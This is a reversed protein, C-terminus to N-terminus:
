QLGAGWVWREGSALLTMSTTNITPCSDLATTSLWAARRQHWTRKLCRWGAWLACLLISSYCISAPSFVPRALSLSLSLGVSVTWNPFPLTTPFPCPLSLCVVVTKRGWHMLSHLHLLNQIYRLRWTLAMPILTGRKRLNLVAILCDPITQSLILSLSPNLLSQKPQSHSLQDCLTSGCSKSSTSPHMACPQGKLNRWARTLHWRERRCDGLHCHILWNM